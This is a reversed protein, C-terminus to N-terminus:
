YRVPSLALHLSLMFAIFDSFINSFLNVPIVLLPTKLKSIVSMVSQIGLGVPLKLLIDGLLRKEKMLWLPLQLVCISTQANAFNITLTNQFHFLYKQEGFFRKSISVDAYM